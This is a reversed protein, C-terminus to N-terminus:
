GGLLYKARKNPLDLKEEYEVAASEHSKIISLAEAWRGREFDSLAEHFLSEGLDLSAGFAVVKFREQM